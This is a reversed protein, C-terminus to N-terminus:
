TPTKGNDDVFVTIADKGDCHALLITNSDNQFPATPATFNGTYRATNSVRIEDIWGNWSNAALYDAGIRCRSGASFNNTDTYSSGTQTGDIFMKSIGSSRSVAVHYWTNASIANTATIATNNYLHSYYIRNTNTIGLLFHYDGTGTQNGMIIKFASPLTGVRIWCEYTFDGTGFAFVSNAETDIYDGTGDFLAASSGFKSQATDIQANGNAILARRSRSGNDDLFVTSADTNDCHLLMITNTDNVFPTTPATFSATYRATNSIRIEDLHGNVGLSSANLGGIYVKADTLDTTVTRSNELNGNLFMRIVDSGDRAFAIHYWTNTSLTTVGSTTGGSYIYLVNNLVGFQYQFTDSSNHIRFVFKEGSVNALRIWCECTYTGDLTLTTLLYDSTGDFLASSGGYYSQATDIQANGNAIVGRQFRVGNDDDFFTAADTGDCHVLLLTNDDNTFATTSPTFNATYRVTKSIRLEDMHGNFDNSITTATPAEGGLIWRTFSANWSSATSLTETGNYWFKTTGSSRTVAWHYWTNSTPFDGTQLGGTGSSFFRVQGTDFYFSARFTGGDYLSWMVGANNTSRFWGEITFDISTGFQWDNNADIAELWDDTGDLLLSSGGFKSQATDVQANNVAVLSKKYRLVQAAASVQFKGLGNLKFAGIPM